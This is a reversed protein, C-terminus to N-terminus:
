RPLWGSLAKALREEPDQCEELHKRIAKTLAHWHEQTFLEEDLESIAIPYDIVNNQVVVRYNLDAIRPKNETEINEFTLQEM